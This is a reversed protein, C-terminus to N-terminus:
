GIHRYLTKGIMALLTSPVHTMMRKAARMQWTTQPSKYRDRSRATATYRLYVLSTRHAGWRDKFRILGENDNDSRGFDFTQLGAHRAEQISRWLLFHMGGLNHFQEKSCGYKYLLTDKYRLTLIAAVVQSGKFALRIQLADGLCDILNRFWVVPQPPVGRRRRTLILLRYFESLFLESCGVEYRLGEREARRIKRQTSDKHCASFLQSLSPGLDLRHHAYEYTSAYSSDTAEYRAMPRMEIYRWTRSRIGDENLQALIAQLDSPDDVLPDCYESFPLSVLRCGTLWSKVQCFALANRLETGPPSTTYAVPEYGYTRHLAELWGATHFISARPHTEVFGSWRPNNLLSIKSVSAANSPCIPEALRLTTRTESHDM